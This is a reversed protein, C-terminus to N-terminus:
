SQLYKHLIRIAMDCGYAVAVAYGHTDLWNIWMKQEKSVVGGKVRKMELFLIQHTRSKNSALIMLDPFGARLGSKKLSKMYAYKNKSLITMGNPISCCVIGISECYQFFFEQEIRELPTINKNM